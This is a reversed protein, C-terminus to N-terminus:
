VQFGSNVKDSDDENAGYHIVTNEAITLCTIQSTINCEGQDHSSGSGAERKTSGHRSHMAATAEAVFIWTSLSRWPTM